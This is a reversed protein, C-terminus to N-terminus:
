LYDVEAIKWTNNFLKFSLVESYSRSNISCTVTIKSTDKALMQFSMNQVIADASKISNIKKLLTNYYGPEVMSALKDTKKLHEATLFETALVTLFVKDDEPIIQNSSAGEGQVAGELVSEKEPAPKAYKNIIDDNNNSWTYEAFFKGIFVSLVLLCILLGLRPFKGKKRKREKSM